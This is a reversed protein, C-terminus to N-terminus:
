KLHLSSSACCQAAGTLCEATPCFSILASFLITMGSGRFLDFGDEIEEKMGSM